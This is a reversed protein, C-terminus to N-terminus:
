SGCHHSFFHDYKRVLQYFAKDFTPRHDTPLWFQPYYAFSMSTKHNNLNSYLKIDHTKDWEQLTGNVQELLYHMIGRNTSDGLFLIQLFVISFIKIESTHMNTDLTHLFRM